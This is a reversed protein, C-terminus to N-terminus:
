NVHGDVSGSQRESQHGLLSFRDAAPAKDSCGFSITHSVEKAFDALQQGWNEFNYIENPNEASPAPKDSYGFGLLDISYVRGHAALPM